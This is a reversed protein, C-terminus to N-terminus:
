WERVYITLDGLKIFPENEDPTIQYILINVDLDNPRHSPNFRFGFPTNEMWLDFQTPLNYSKIYPGSKMVHHVPLPLDINTVFSLQTVAKYKARQKRPTRETVRSLYGSVSNGYGCGRKYMEYIRREEFRYFLSPLLTTRIYTKDIDKVYGFPTSLKEISQSYVSTLKAMKSLLNQVVDSSTCVREQGYVCSLVFLTVWTTLCIRKM